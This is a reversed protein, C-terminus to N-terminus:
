PIASAENSFGGQGGSVNVASVRYAVEVGPAVGWDDYAPQTTFGIPEWGGGPASDRYIAYGQLSPDVIPDWALHVSPGQPQVTLNVPAHLYSNWRQLYVDWSGSQDDQWAVGAPSIVPRYHRSTGTTVATERWAKLDFLSINSNGSAADEYAVYDGAIVPSHQEAPDSTLRIETSTVLDYLFIDPNGSRQDEWVIRDGQIMAAYQNRPDTTIQRETGTSLDYLYIDYNGNRRDVWVIRNGSVGAGDQEAPDYTIRREEGTALDFMYIEPDGHRWDTWVVRRGDTSPATHDSGDSTIRTELGAALDYAYIDWTGNRHDQWVVVDGSIVPLAQDSPDTTLRTQLGTGLDQMYIDADGTRLDEWVIRNGSLSPFLQDSAALTSVASVMSSFDAVEVLGTRSNNAENIEAVRDDHDVAAFLTHDGYAGLTVYMTAVISSGAPVGPITRRALHAGGAAPDGDFLDIDVSTAAGRGTNSVTVDVAVPGDLAASPSAPALASITLEPRVLALDARAVAGAANVRGYGTFVDFGNGQLDDASGELVARVLDASLLPQRALILAVVGAAHPAAMSTGRLRFYDKGVVQSPYKGALRGQSAKLSLINVFKLQPDAPDASDGGPAAVSLRDGWNSFDTKVGNRDVAGVAIVQPYSAPATYRVDTNGNGAAAVLVAGLSAAYAVADAVVQSAPGGWSMNIVEAGHAAAYVIGAAANAGTGTGLASFSKVALVKAGFAVGIVGRQNNGIAALIGAVHTGHGSDDMPDADGNVFDWGRLDDVYGDADDDAGNVERAEVTGNHNLDEGPNIWVNAKLDAHNYDVGTDVLGIVVGAGTSTKWAGSAQIGKLGWLDDYPQGWSGSSLYYTDNPFTTSATRYVFNPEAYVVEPDKRMERALSEVDARGNKLDLVYIRDLTPIAARAAARAARQPFRERIEGAPRPQAFAHRAVADPYRRKLNQVVLADGSDMEHRLKVVIEGPAFETSAPKGGGAFASALAVLAGAALTLRM